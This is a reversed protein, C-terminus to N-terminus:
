KQPSKEVSSHLVELALKERKKITDFLIMLCDDCKTNGRAVRRQQRCGSCIKVEVPRAISQPAVAVTYEEELQFAAFLM